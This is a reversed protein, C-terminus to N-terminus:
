SGKGKRRGGKYKIRKGEDLVTETVDTGTL